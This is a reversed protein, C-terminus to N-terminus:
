LKEERKRAGGCRDCTEVRGSNSNTTTVLTSWHASLATPTLTANPYTRRWTTAAVAVQEPTAGASRLDATAKNIRGRESNTLRALDSGCVEAVKEFLLDRERPKGRRSPNGQREDGSRSPNEQRNEQRNQASASTKDSRVDADQRVPREHGATAPTRHDGVVFTWGRYHGSDGRRRAAKSVLGLAELETIIRSVQRVSLGSLEAVRKMSPWCYGDSNAHDALSLLVLKSSATPTEQQWAWNMVEISM